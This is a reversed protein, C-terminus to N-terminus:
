TRGVIDAKLHKWVLEDPNKDPSYPPLYFIRLAGGLGAVIDVTQCFAIAVVNVRVFQLKPLPDPLPDRDAHVV